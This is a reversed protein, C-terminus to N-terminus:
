RGSSGFGRDGRASNQLAPVEIPVLDKTLNPMIVLQAIREGAEVWITSTTLNRCNAFLEGRYGSDIVADKVLLGRHLASSRGTVLGWGWEPLEVAFGSPVATFAGPPCLTTESAFLDLGADEGPHASRPLSFERGNKWQDSIRAFRIPEFEPKAETNAGMKEMEILVAEIDDPGGIVVRNGYGSLHWGIKGTLVVGVPKRQAVAREIEAPVGNSAVGAVLVALLSDCVALAHSNIVGVERGEKLERPISFAEGPDYLGGGRKLLTQKAQEAIEFLSVPAEVQDIPYALYTLRM